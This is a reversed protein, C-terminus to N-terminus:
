HEDRWGRAALGALVLAVAVVASGPGFGPGVADLPGAAATTPPDTANAAPTPTAALVTAGDGTVVLAGRREVATLV